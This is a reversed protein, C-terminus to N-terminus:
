APRLHLLVMEANVNNMGPIDLSSPHHGQFTGCQEVCRVELSLHDRLLTAYDAMVVEEADAVVLSRGAGAPVCRLALRQSLALRQGLAERLYSVRESCIASRSRACGTPPTRPSMM